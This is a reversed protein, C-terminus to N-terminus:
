KLKQHWYTIPMNEEQKLKSKAFNCMHPHCVAVQSARGEMSAGM